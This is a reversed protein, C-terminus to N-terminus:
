ENFGVHFISSMELFLNMSKDSESIPINSLCQRFQLSKKAAIEIGLYESYYISM